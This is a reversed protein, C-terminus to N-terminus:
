CMRQGGPRFLHRGVVGNAGIVLWSRPVLNFDHSARSEGDRTTLSFSPPARRLARARAIVYCSCTVMRTGEAVRAAHQAGTRPARRRERTAAFYDFLSRGERRCTEAAGLLRVFAKEGAVHRQRMTPSKTSREHETYLECFRSYSYAVQEGVDAEYEAHLLQLTVGKGALERKVRAFDPMVRGTAPPPPAGFLSRELQADDVEEPVPWRM